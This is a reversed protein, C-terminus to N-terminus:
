AAKLNLPHPLNPPIKPRRCLGAYMASFIGPTHSGPCRPIFKMLNIHRSRAFPSRQEQTLKEEILAVLDPTM